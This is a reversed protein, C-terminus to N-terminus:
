VKSEARVAGLVLFVASARVIREEGVQVYCNGFALRSGRKQIDVRTELWDGIKASGAYDLTLNATVMSLPPESDSAIAYGLAVDALMALIGGHVTGRANCDKEAVCLGLELAAGQGRSFGSGTSSSRVGPGAAWVTRCRIDGAWAPRTSNMRMTKSWRPARHRTRISTTM